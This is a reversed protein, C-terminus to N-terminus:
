KGFYDEELITPKSKFGQKEYEADKCVDCLYIVILGVVEKDDCGYYPQGIKWVWCKALKEFKQKCFGCKRKKAM